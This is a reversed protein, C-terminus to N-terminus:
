LKHPTGRRGCDSAYQFFSRAEALAEANSKPKSKAPGEDAPRYDPYQLNLGDFQASANCFISLALDTCLFSTISPTRDPPKDGSPYIYFPPAKSPDQVAHYFEVYGTNLLDFPAFDFDSGAIPRPAKLGPTTLNHLINGIVYMGPDHQLYVVAKVQGL